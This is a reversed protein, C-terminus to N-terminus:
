PPTTFTASISMSAKKLLYVDSPPRVQRVRLQCGTLINQLSTSAIRAGEAGTQSKCSHGVSALSPVVVQVDDIDIDRDDVVPAKENDMSNHEVGTGSGPDLSRAGMDGSNTYAVPKPLIM